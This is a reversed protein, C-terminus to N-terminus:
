IVEAWVEFMSSELSSFRINKYHSMMIHHQKCQDDNREIAQLVSPLKKLSQM